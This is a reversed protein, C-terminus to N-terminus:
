CSSSTHCVFGSPSLDIYCGPGSRSSLTFYISTEKNTLQSCFKFHLLAVLKFYFLVDSCQLKLFFDCETIAFKLCAVNWSKTAYICVIYKCCEFGFNQSGYFLSIMTWSLLMLTYSWLVSFLPLGKIDAWFTLDYLTRCTPGEGKLSTFM